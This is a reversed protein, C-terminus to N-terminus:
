RGGSLAIFPIYINVTTIAIFILMLVIINIQIKRHKVLGHVLLVATLITCVILIPSIYFLMSEIILLTTYGNVVDLTELIIWLGFAICYLGAIGWLINRLIKM